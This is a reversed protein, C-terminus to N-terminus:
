DDLAKTYSDNFVVILRGIARRGGKEFVVESRRGKKVQTIGNRGFITKTCAFQVRHHTTL